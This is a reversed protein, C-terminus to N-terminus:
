FSLASAVERMRNSAPVHYLRIHTETKEVYYNPFEAGLSVLRVSLGMTIVVDSNCPFEIDGNETRFVRCYEVGREIM